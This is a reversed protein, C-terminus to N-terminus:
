FDEPMSVNLADIDTQAYIPQGKPGHEVPILHTKFYAAAKSWSKLHVRKSKQPLASSSDRNNQVATTM